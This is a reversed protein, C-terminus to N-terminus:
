PSGSARARKVADFTSTHKSPWVMLNGCDEDAQASLAVGLLMQFSSMHEHKEGDIHWQWNGKGPKTLAKEAQMPFRLAVQGNTGNLRSVRGLLQSAIGYAPSAM